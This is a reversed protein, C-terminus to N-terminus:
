PSSFRQRQLEAWRQRLAQVRQRLSRSQQLQEQAQAKLQEVTQMVAQSQAAHQKQGEEISREARTRNM